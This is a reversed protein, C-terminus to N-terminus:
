KVGNLSATKFLKLKETMLIFAQHSQLNQLLLMEQSESLSQQKNPKKNFPFFSLVSSVMWFELVLFVPFMTEEQPYFYFTLCLKMESDLAWFVASMLGFDSKHVAGFM